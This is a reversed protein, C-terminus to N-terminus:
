DELTVSSAVRESIRGDRQLDDVFCAFAQCMAPKDTGYAPVHRCRAAWSQRFASRVQRATLKPQKMSQM